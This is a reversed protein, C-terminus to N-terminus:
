SSGHSCNANQGTSNDKAKSTIESLLRKWMEFVKPWSYQESRARANRSIRAALDPDRVLRVVAAAMAEDDDSPVLMGDVEHTVLHPVGGVATCVVCLGMAQSEIVSVPMNDIRTTNLFIDCGDTKVLLNHKELYGVFDIAETINLKAALQRTDTEAGRDPGAMTLHAGPLQGCLHALARVAMQPNYVDGQFSRSWIANPQVIERKRFPLSHWDIPNPIVQVTFGRSAFGDALYGSPSVIANARRLHKTIKEPQSDFRQLLNGGHLSLVVRKGLRRAIYASFIAWHLATTSFTDIIAVDYENRNALLTQVMHTFRLMRNATRSATIM